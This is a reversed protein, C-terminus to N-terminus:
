VRKEEMGNDFVATLNNAQLTDPLKEKYTLVLKFNRIGESGISGTDERSFFNVYGSVTCSAHWLLNEGTFTYSYEHKGLQFSSGKFLEETTINDCPAYTCGKLLFAIILLCILPFKYRLM